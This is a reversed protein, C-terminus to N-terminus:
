GKKRILPLCLLWFAASYLLFMVWGVNTHFFGSAFERSFLAGITLILFIRLGNVLVTGLLGLVYLLLFKQQSIFKWNTVLILLSLFSFLVASEFGSSGKCVMVSYESLGIQPCRMGDTALTANHFFLNLLPSTIALAALAIPKWYTELLRLLMFFGLASLVSAYVETKAAAYLHKSFRIGFLGIFLLIFAALILLPKYLFVASELFGPRRGDDIFLLVIGDDRSFTKGSDYSVLSDTHYYFHRAVSITAKDGSSNLRLMLSNSGPKLAAKDVQVSMLAVENKAAKLFESSVDFEKDNVALIVKTKDSLNGKGSWSGFWRVAVKQSLSDYNSIIVERKVAINTNSLETDGLTFTTGLLGLRDYHIGQGDVQALGSQLATFFPVQIFSVLVFLGLGAALFLWNARSKKPEHFVKDRAIFYFAVLALAVALYARQSHFIFDVQMFLPASEASVINLLPLVLLMLLFLFAYKVLDRNGTGLSHM